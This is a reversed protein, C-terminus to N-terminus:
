VKRLTVYTWGAWTCEYNLAGASLICVQLTLDWRWERLLAEEGLLEGQKVTKKIKGKGGGETNGKVEARDQVEEDEDEQAAEAQHTVLVVSGAFLYYCGTCIYSFV